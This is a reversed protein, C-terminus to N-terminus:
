LISYLLIYVVKYLIFVIESSLFNNVSWTARIYVRTYSHHDRTHNRICFWMCSKWYLPVHYNYITGVKNPYNVHFCYLGLLAGHSFLSIVDM